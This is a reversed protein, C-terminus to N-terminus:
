VLLAVWLLPHAGHAAQHAEPRDAQAGLHQGQDVQGGEPGLRVGQGAREAGRDAHEQALRRGGAGPAAQVADLRRGLPHGQLDLLEEVRRLGVQLVRVVHPSPGRLVREPRHRHLPLLQGRPSLSVLRRLSPRPWGPRGQGAGGALRRQGALRRWRPVLGALRRRSGQGRGEGRLGCAGAAPGRRWRALAPAGLQAVRVGGLGGSDQYHVIPTMYTIM